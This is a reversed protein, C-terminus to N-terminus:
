AFKRFNTRPLYRLDELLGAEGGILLQFEFLQHM